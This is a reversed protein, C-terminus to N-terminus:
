CTWHKDTRVYEGLEGVFEGRMFGNPLKADSDTVLTVKVETHSPTPSKYVSYKGTLRADYGSFWGYKKPVSASM